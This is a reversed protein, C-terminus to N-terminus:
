RLLLEERNEEDSTLSYLEHHVSLYNISHILSQKMHKRKKLSFVQKGQEQFQEESWKTKLM